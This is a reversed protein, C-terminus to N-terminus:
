CNNKTETSPANKIMISESDSNFETASKPDTGPSVERVRQEKAMERVDQLHKIHRERRFALLRLSRCIRLHLHFAVARGPVYEM